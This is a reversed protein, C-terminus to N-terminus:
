TSPELSVWKVTISVSNNALYIFINTHNSKLLSFERNYLKIIDINVRKGDKNQNRYCQITSKTM